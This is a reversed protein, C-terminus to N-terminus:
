ISLLVRTPRAPTAASSDGERVAKSDADHNASSSASESTGCYTNSTSCSSSRSRSYSDEGTLYQQQGSSSSRSRPRPIRSTDVVATLYHRSELGSAEMWEDWSGANRIIHEGRARNSRSARLAGDRNRWSTSSSSAGAKTRSLRRNERSSTSSRKERSRPSAEPTQWKVRANIWSSDRQAKSPTVVTAPSDRPLVIASSAAHADIDRDDVEPAAESNHFEFVSTGNDQFDRTSTGPTGWKDELTVRSSSGTSVCSSAEQDADVPTASTDTTNSKPAFADEDEVDCEKNGHTEDLMAFAAPSIWWTAEGAGRDEVPLASNRASTSSSSYSNAPFPCSPNQQEWSQAAVSEEFTALLSATSETSEHKLWEKFARRSMRRAARRTARSSEGTSLGGDECGVGGTQMRREWIRWALKKLRAEAKKEQAHALRIRLVDRLVEVEEETGARGQLEHSHGSGDAAARPESDGPDRKGCPWPFLCACNCANVNALAPGKNTSRWTVRVAESSCIMLCFCWPWTWSLLRQRMIRHQSSLSGLVQVASSSVAVM